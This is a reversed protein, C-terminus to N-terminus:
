FDLYNNIIDTFANTYFPNNTFIYVNNIIHKIFNNPYRIGIIFQNFKKLLLIYSDKALLLLPFVSEKPLSIGPPSNPALDTTLYIYM